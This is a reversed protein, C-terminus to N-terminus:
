LVVLRTLYSTMYMAHDHHGAEALDDGVRDPQRRQPPDGDRLAWSTIGEVVERAGGRLGEAGRHGHDCEDLLVPLVERAEVPHGFGPCVTALQRGGPTETRER